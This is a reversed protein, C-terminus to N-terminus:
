KATLQMTGASGLYTPDAPSGSVGAAFAAGVYIKGKPLKLSDLYVRGNGDTRREVVAFKNGNVDTFGVLVPKTPLPVGGSTLTFWFAASGTTAITGTTASPTLATVAKQVTVQPGSAASALHSADGDYTATLPYTGVATSLPLAVTATGSAATAASASAGGLTVTVV